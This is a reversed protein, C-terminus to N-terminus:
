AASERATVRRRATRAPSRAPAFAHRAYAEFTRPPRGTLRRVDDAPAAERGSSVNDLLDAALAARERPMGSRPAEEVFRKRSVSEFRIARGSAFAIAATAAEFTLGRPGTLEYVRGSHGSQTLAQLAVDAVDEADV